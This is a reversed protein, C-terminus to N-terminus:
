ARVKSCGSTCAGHDGHPTFGQKPRRPSPTVSLAARAADDAGRPVHAEAVTQVPEARTQWLALSLVYVVVYAARNAGTPTVGREERPKMDGHYPPDYVTTSTSGSAPQLVPRSATKM